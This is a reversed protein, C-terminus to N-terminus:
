ATLAPEPIEVHPLASWIEFLFDQVEASTYVDRDLTAKLQKEILAQADSM